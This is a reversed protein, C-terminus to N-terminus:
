QNVLNQKFTAFKRQFQEPRIRLNFSALQPLIEAFYFELKPLTILGKQIMAQVDVFDKQNGRALKSLAISYFDFHFVNLLGFRGIYVRRNEYGAPLPLFDAPSAQEIPVNMERSLQQLCGILLTHHENPVEYTLDIDFTTVKAAVLALSSGGVLYIVGQYRYCQGLRNLFHHILQQDIMKQKRSPM